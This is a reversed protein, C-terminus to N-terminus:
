ISKCLLQCQYMVTSKRVKIIYYLWHQGQCAGTRTNPIFGRSCSSSLPLCLECTHGWAQGVTACCLAKSCVFGSSQGGCKRNRVQIFCPGTRYDSIDIFILIVFIMIKLDFSCIVVNNVLCTHNTSLFLKNERLSVLFATISNYM